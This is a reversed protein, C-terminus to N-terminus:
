THAPVGMLSGMHNVFCECLEMKIIIGCGAMIMHHGAMNCMILTCVQVIYLARM